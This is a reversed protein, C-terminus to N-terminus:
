NFSTRLTFHYFSIFTNLNNILFKICRSYGELSVSKFISPSCWLLVANDLCPQSRMTAWLPSVQISTPGLTQLTPHSQRERDKFCSWIDVEFSGQFFYLCNSCSSQSVEKWDQYRISQIIREQLSCVMTWCSSICLQVTCEIRCEHEPAQHM